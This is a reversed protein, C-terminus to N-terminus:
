IVSGGCEYSADEAVSMHRKRWVGLIFGGSGEYSAEEVVM